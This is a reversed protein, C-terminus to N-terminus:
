NPPVIPRPAGKTRYRLELLHGHADRREGQIQVLHGHADRRWQHQGHHHHSRHVAPIRVLSARRNEPSGADTSPLVYRTPPALKSGLREMQVFLWPANGAHAEKFMEQFYPRNGEFAAVWVHSAYSLHGEITVQKAAKESIAGAVLNVAADAGALKPFFAAFTGVAAGSLVSDIIRGPGTRQKHEVWTVAGAVLGGVAPAVKAAREFTEGVAFLRRSQATSTLVEYGESIKFPPPLAKRAARLFPIATLESILAGVHLLKTEQEVLWITHELHHQSSSEEGGQPKEGAMGTSDMLCIPNSRVYLFLNVGDKLGIPDPNTWRGLWPVYFRAGHYYLANEDDREKGTFRYRKPTENQNRVSQYSTSGYPLYEEYTIVNSADDLELMASGLHNGHQYRVLVPLGEDIGQTRTEGLAIRSPGDSLHLTERAVKVTVGDAQYERYIEIAGLYIRQKARTGTQGAPAQGDTVKRERAGSANYNYFTTEPTANNAVQRTTSRLHDLEDWAMVPLHPMRTMNGHADHTYTASYPGAAPDGPLSTSTLRNNTEGTTIQSPERYAYRRRWSVSSVAHTLVLLNSVEDYQYKETYTGMANRDDPQLQNIRFGDDDTIQQPPNLQGGTQGLHERGTATALRYIADYTYDSSPDVRQNRFFVVNQIDADDQIHTINGAPDYAYTLDQVTRANAPFSSPRTTVLHALRFTLRDYAYDTVTGNGCKTATRKGHEDYEIGTAAHLTATAPDLLGNPETAQQQWVDVRDLLSRQNYAPRIVNPKMTASHPTVTQIVRNLADYMSTASFRDADVLQPKAAADLAEPDTLNALATWDVANRYEAALQRTSAVLNGKYDFVDNSALGAQDYQRFLRGSLNQTPMGEGYISRELLITRANVTVYRHTPRRVLDYHLEFTRGLADWARIPKGTVDSLVRREGGDMGCHYLENGALDRGAVYQFGGGAVPERLCYEFVRRGLADFIALPKNGADSATRTPYRGDNGNDAIALCTRGLSDFHAGAPTAAHPETNKAATQEAAGLAGDIRQDHWSTWAGPGTGLLRTFRDGVDTDTRPDAILVTDNVDWSAQRWADFVVKAWTQNPHVTAVVRDASDYLMVTSVGVTNAFEFESTTTFFPEYTRVPKGKNNFITWGSAVWRRTVVPGGSVVPGPEALVKKQIERGFGDSYSKTHQYRTLGGALDSVHTERAITYVVGPSPQPSNRTRDYAFLDYILRTTASGLVAGPNALPDALQAQVTADDLDAVFDALPDGVETTKGMVATGVVLGLADFAVASHNGNADTIEAPQLVRFDNTVTLTNGVADVTSAALLDYAYSVRGIGGFPSVARRPLYFHARAETLEQVPTDSDGPSYFLRGTPIWWNADPAPASLDPPPFHDYGGDGQLTADSLRTGFVRSILAPTLALTFSDGPLALSQLEDPGCLGTLDDKRYLTRSQNVMRRTPVAGPQGSGDIDSRPINEYALDSLSRWDDDLDGFSFLDTIAKGRPKPSLGTWEWTTTQSPMPTRHVDPTKAPDALDNTYRHETAVIHLRTQDYALMGRFQVSLLPEPEPYGARRPYGVSVTRKPNGFPDTELTLEHTVRPDNQQREYHFTLTERPHAYFVAHKNPGIPQRREITYNTETISYPNAALPSRDDSYVEVRMALGKLARYAEQLEFATMSTDSTIVSDLLEMARRDEARAESRLAPEVWYEHAYQRSVGRAQLFAGTHFWSRTRVPPSWSSPDWNTDDVTPFATDERHEETDWQEVMGFGRFEREYGDFYGHHYAYRSVFRSRGVYDFTEVRDVVHVVHPLRTVWPTGALEDAVYFKTSPAYSVRTKAGLNNRAGTMLHPKQGMLDVYRLPAAAHGPLPSSWVLCATGTGLLDFVQVPSLTDATPYIAIRQPEAWANGSQNFCVYVGEDAVYLLDTTGSGDIDALRVRRPDFSAEDVFRPAGDMTVKTGFRGYGQNPWYCVEGNRVRVIDSLGDGTMDALFVTETGDALVVAPGREEEWSTRVRESEAFGEQGLSAWFTFVGDESLLADPLGDGTVDILKLNPESWPLDPRSAFPRFPRWSAHETREFFGAVPPELEVVDLRGDGSLDLLRQSGGLESHSPVRAVTEQPGFRARTAVSGDPARVQHVPSFNRKYVWAGGVDSLIGSLGEGDLDVWQYRAGDIGEPLNEISDRDFILVDSQLRAESYEFELPPLWRRLYGNQERSYGSQTISTLFTYIPNRPDLPHDQDFYRLDTSRVLLDRGVEREEVFTHFVLVRQCRRCTRIEFGARHTSFPDPRVQWSRDPAPTPVDPDHDGFDFVIQFRWDNPLPPEAGDESGDAFYPQVNGYRIVQLYRQTARVSDTRNAEHALSRDVGVSDDSVYSYHAINGKDDFTRCLLYSFVARPDAPSAIRSDDDFGYLSTVNDRTITRFHSVGTAVTTWREIRAFLGEIRPRYYRVRYQVGHLTRPTTVRAGGEDLVPVLDEAGSLLFVDSEEDDRYLPLGKDTKRTIAPADMHWGFGFPGNGAGSDYGLHLQPAFGSRGPSTAIPVSLSGTGTAPSVGFKEGIDRIAGGGKPLSPQPLPGSGRESKEAGEGVANSKSLGEDRV